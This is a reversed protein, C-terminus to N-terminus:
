PAEHGRPHLLRAHLGDILARVLLEFEADRDHRAEFMKRANPLEAVADDAPRALDRFVSEEEVIGVIALSSTTAAILAKDPSLGSQRWHGVWRETMELSAGTWVRYARRIHAVAPHAARSERMWHAITWLDDQWVGTPPPLPHHSIAADVLLAALAAKDEVHHYLAMPTVGLAQAVARMTFGAAGSADAVALAAVAIRAPDLETACRKAPQSM